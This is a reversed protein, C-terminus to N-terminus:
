GVRSAKLLRILDKKIKAPDIQAPFHMMLNGQPDVLWLGQAAGARQAQPLRESWAGQPDAETSLVWTGELGAPLPEAPAATSDLTRLWVREVRDRDRGTTLRIQRMEVLSDICAQACPGPSVWVM